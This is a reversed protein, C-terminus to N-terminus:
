VVDRVAQKYAREGKQIINGGFNQIIRRRQGKLDNDEIDGRLLPDANYNVRALDEMMVIGARRNHPDGRGLKSLASLFYYDPRKIKGNPNSFSDHTMSPDVESTEHNTM